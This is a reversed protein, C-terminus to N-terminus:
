VWYSAGALAILRVRAPRGHAHRRRGETPTVSRGTDTNFPTRVSSV